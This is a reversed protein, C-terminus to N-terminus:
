GKRRCYNYWGKRYTIWIRSSFDELFVSLGNVADDETGSLSSEEAAIKYRVGLLWIETSPSLTDIRGTGLIREQFRRMAGGTMIRKITKTWDNTRPKTEKEISFLNPNSEFISFPSAFISSLLSSKSPNSNNDTQSASSSSDSLKSDVAGEPLSTM